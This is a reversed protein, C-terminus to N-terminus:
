WEKQHMQLALDSARETHLHLSPHGVEAVAVLAELLGQHAYPGARPGAAGVEAVLSLPRQQGLCRSAAPPRWQLPAM